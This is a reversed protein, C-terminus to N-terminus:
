YNFVTYQRNDACLKTYEAHTGLWCIFLCVDNKGFHYRCILRYHNGGVDFVVRNSGAGLADTAPFTNKM